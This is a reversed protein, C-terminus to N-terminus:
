AVVASLLLAYLVTTVPFFLGKQWLWGKMEPDQVARQACTLHHNLPRAIDQAINTNAIHTITKCHVEALSPAPLGICEAATNAM